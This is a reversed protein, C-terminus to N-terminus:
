GGAPVLVGDARSSPQSISGSMVLGHRLPIRCKLAIVILWERKRSSIANRRPLQINWAYIVPTDDFRSV